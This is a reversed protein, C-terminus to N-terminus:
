EHDVVQIRIDFSAGAIRPVIRSGSVLQDGYRERVWLIVSRPIGNNREVKAPRSIHEIRSTLKAGALTRLFSHQSRVNEALQSDWSSSEWLLRHRDQEFKKLAFSVFTDEISGADRQPV